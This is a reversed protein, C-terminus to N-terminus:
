EVREDWKWVCWQGRFAVGFHEWSRGQWGPRANPALSAVSLRPCYAAHTRRGRHQQLPPPLPLRPPPRLTACPCSTLGPYGRFYRRRSWARGLSQFVDRRFWIWLQWLASSAWLRGFARRPLFNLAVTCSKRENASKESLRVSIPAKVFCHTTSVVSFILGIHSMKNMIWCSLGVTSGTSVERFCWSHCLHSLHPAVEADTGTKTWFFKTFSRRSGGFLYYGEYLIM